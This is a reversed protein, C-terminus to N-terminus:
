IYRTTCLISQTRILPVFKMYYNDDIELLFFNSWFNYLHTRNIFLVVIFDVNRSTIPKVHLSAWLLNGKSFHNNICKVYKFKPSRRNDTKSWHQSQVIIYELNTTILSTLSAKHGNTQKLRMLIANKNM